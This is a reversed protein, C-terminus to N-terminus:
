DLHDTAGSCLRCSSLTYRTALQSNRVALSIERVDKAAVMYAMFDCQPAFADMFNNIEEWDQL